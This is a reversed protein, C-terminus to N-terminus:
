ERLGAEREVREIETRLGKTSTARVVRQPDRRKAYLLGAVAGGWTEWGPYEESITALTEQDDGSAPLEPPRISDTRNAIV